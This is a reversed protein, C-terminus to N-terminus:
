VHVVIKWRVYHMRSFIRVANCLHTVNCVFDRLHTRTFRSFFFQLARDGCHGLTCNFLRPPLTDRFYNCNGTPRPFFPHFLSHSLFRSLSFSPLPLARTSFIVTFLHGCTPCAARHGHRTLLGGKWNQWTSRFNEQVSAHVGQATM